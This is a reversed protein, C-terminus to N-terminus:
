RARRPARHYRVKPAPDANSFSFPQLYAYMLRWHEKDWPPEMVRAFKLAKLIEYNLLRWVGPTRNLKELDWGLQCVPCYM